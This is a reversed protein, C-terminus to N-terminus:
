NRSKDNLRLEKYIQKRMEHQHQMVENYLKSDVQSPTPLVYPKAEVVPNIKDQM